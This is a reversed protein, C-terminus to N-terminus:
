ANEGEAAQEAAPEAETVSAFASADVNRTTKVGCIVTDKQTMVTVNEISVDHARVKKDLDLKSIDINVTDPLDKMLACLKVKRCVQFFKGGKQVGIAHGSIKVPVDITIPKDESVKLFDVHLCADSIPHFQLEHVIATYKGGDALDIDIIFSEPSNIIADIDRTTVTFLVNKLGQGYLNCPVLNQRRFAKITAKNGVERVQGKLTVHKM